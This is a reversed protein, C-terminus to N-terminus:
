KNAAWRDDQERTDNSTITSTTSPYFSSFDTINIYGDSFLLTTTDSGISWTFSLCAIGVQAGQQRTLMVDMLMLIRSVINLLIWSLATM